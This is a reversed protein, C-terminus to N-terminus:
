VSIMQAQQRDGRDCITMSQLEVKNIGRLGNFHVLVFRDSMVLLLKCCKFLRRETKGLDLAFSSACVNNRRKRCKSRLGFHSLACACTSTRCFSSLCQRVTEPRGKATLLPSKLGCELLFPADWRRRASNCFWDRFKNIV